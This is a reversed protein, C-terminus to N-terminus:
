EGLLKILKKNNLESEAVFKDRHKKLESKKTKINTYVNMVEEFLKDANIEEVDMCNLNMSSLFDKVKPDYSIGLPYSLNLTAFILGHLRMSITIDTNAIVSLMEEITLKKDVFFIKDSIKEYIDLNIKKDADFYFPLLILNIKQTDIKQAFKIIESKIKDDMEKWPRIVIAINTKNRSINLNYLLKLDIKKDAEPMLFVSDATLTINKNVGIFKLFEYSGKDRVTITDVTNLVTATYKQRSKQIPGIGQAYIMVKKKCIKKAINILTLYYYLSKASTVDQLLSGGGSVFLDARNLEKLIQIINMRDISKVGYTESTEKPNKSLVTIEVNKVDRKVSNIFSMLIAEDGINNFGFYGSVVIKYM